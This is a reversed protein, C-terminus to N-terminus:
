AACGVSRAKRLSAPITLRRKAGYVASKLRQNFHRSVTRLSQNYPYAM